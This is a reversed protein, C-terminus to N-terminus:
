LDHRELRRVLARFGATEAGAGGGEVRVDDVVRGDALVLVRDAYAAVRANHTVLVTTQSRERCLRSLMEMVEHGSQRDLNGTPEDALLIPPENALARAIAVRQQQGGSLQSSHHRM